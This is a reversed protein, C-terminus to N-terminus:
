LVQVVGALHVSQNVLNPGLVGIPTAGKLHHLNWAEILLTLRLKHAM